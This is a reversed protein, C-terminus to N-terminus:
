QNLRRLGSEGGARPRYLFPGPCGFETYATCAAEIISRSEQDLFRLYAATGEYRDIEPLPARYLWYVEEMWECARWNDGFCPAGWGEAAAWDLQVTGPVGAPVWRAPEDGAAACFGVQWNLYWRM